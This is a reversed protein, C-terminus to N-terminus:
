HTYSVPVQDPPQGGGHVLGRDPAQDPDVPVGGPPDDLPDHDVPQVGVPQVVQEDDADVFHRPAPAVRVESQHARMRGPPEHPALRALVGLGQVAEEPPSPGSREAAISATEISMPGANSLDARLGPCAVLATM